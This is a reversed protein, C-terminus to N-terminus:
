TMAGGGGWGGFGSQPSIKLRTKATWVVNVSSGQVPVVMRYGSCCLKLLFSEWNSISVQELEKPEYIVAVRRIACYYFDLNIFILQNRITCASNM